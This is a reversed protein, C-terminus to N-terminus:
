SSSSNAPIGRCKWPEERTVPMQSGGGVSGVLALQCWSRMTAWDRIAREDADFAPLPPRPSSRPGDGGAIGPPALHRPDHRRARRQRRDACRPFPGRIRDVPEETPGMPGHDRRHLHVQRRAGPVSPIGTHDGGPQLDGAGDGPRMRHGMPRRARDGHGAGIRVPLGYQRHGLRGPGLDPGYRVRRPGLVTSRHGTCRRHDHHPARGTHPSLSGDCRQWAAAICSVTVLSLM